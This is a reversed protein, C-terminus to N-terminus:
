PQRTLKITFTQVVLTDEQRMHTIMDENFHDWIYDDRGICKYDNNVPRMFLYAMVPMELYGDKISLAFTQHGPCSTVNNDYYVCTYSPSNRRVYRGANLCGLAGIPTVKIDSERRNTLLRDKDGSHFISVTDTFVRDPSRDFYALTDGKVELATYYHNTEAGPTEIFTSDSLWDSANRKLFDHIFAQNNILHSGAYMIIPGATARESKNIYTGDQIVPAKKDDKSCSILVACCLSLAALQTKM